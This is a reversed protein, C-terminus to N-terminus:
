CVHVKYWLQHNIKKTNFDPTYTLLFNFGSNTEDGIPKGSLLYEFTCYKMYIALAKQEVGILSCKDLNLSSNNLNVSCRTVIDKKKQEVFALLINQIKKKRAIKREEEPTLVPTSVSESNMESVSQVPANFSTSQRSPTVNHISQQPTPAFDFM